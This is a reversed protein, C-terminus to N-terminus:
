LGKTINLYMRETIEREDTLVRFQVGLADFQNKINSTITKMENKALEDLVHSGLGCMMFFEPYIDKTKRNMLEQVSLLCDQMTPTTKDNNLAQHIQSAYVENRRDNTASKMSFQYQNGDPLTKLFTAVSKNYETKIADYNCPPIYQILFFYISDDYKILGDAIVKIPIFKLVMDKKQDNYKSVLTTGDRKRIMFHYYLKAIELYEDNRLKWAFFGWLVFAVAMLFLRMLNGSFIAILGIFFTILIFIVLVTFWVMSMGYQRAGIRKLNKPTIQIIEKERSM